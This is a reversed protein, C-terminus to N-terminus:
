TDNKRLEILVELRSYLDKLRDVILKSEDSSVFVGEKLVNDLAPFVHDLIYILERDVRENRRDFELIDRKLVERDM